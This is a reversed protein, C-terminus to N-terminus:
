RLMEIGLEESVYNAQPSSKRYDVPGLIYPSKV